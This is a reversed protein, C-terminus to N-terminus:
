EDDLMRGLEEILMAQEVLINRLETVVVVDDDVTNNNSDDIIITTGSTEDAFSVTKKMRMTFSRSEREIMTARTCGLGDSPM